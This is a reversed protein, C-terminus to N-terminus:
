QAGQPGGGEAGGTGWIRELRRLLEARKQALDANKNSKTQGSQGTDADAAGRRKARGAGRADEAKPARDKHRMLHEMARALEPLRRVDAETLGAGSALLAELRLIEESIVLLMRPALEAAAKLAIAQLAAGRARMPAAPNRRRWGGKNMLTRLQHRTLGHRATLAVVPEVGDEYDRRVAAVDLGAPWSDRALFRGGRLAARMAELAAPDVGAGEEEQM